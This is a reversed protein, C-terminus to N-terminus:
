FKSVDLGSNAERGRMKTDFGLLDSSGEMSISDQKPNLSEYNMMKLFLYILAAVISGLSPGIWYIWHYSKFGTFVEPGFARASNMAAGTFTVGFMHTAFLVLGIGVPAFPTVYHKEVALFLITFALIGTLIAEILLGQWVKANAGLGCDVSLPGPVIAYLVGSATISALIQALVYLLFRLPKLAGVMLLAIAINPNFVSGSIRYFVLASTLLALAMSASIYLLQAVSPVESISAPNQLEQAARVSTASAQIGGMGMILFVTTGLYEAFAALLDRKFTLLFGDPLNYSEDM